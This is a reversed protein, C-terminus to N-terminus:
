VTEQFNAAKVRLADLGSRIREREANALAEINQVYRQYDSQLKDVDAV